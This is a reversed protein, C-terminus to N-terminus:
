RGIVVLDGANLSGESVPTVAVFGDASLGAVIEVDTPQADNPTTVVSVREKGDAAASVAAVPVVLVDADTSAATMTLRINSGTLTDPLTDSPTITAPHGPQGDGTDVVTESLSSITGNYTTSTLEDLMEVAMGTRLLGAQDPRVTTHVVLAGGSLTVLASNGADDSAQPGGSHSASPGANQVRAPMTPIFVIEGQAITPGNIAELKSLAREAQTAREQAAAVQREQATSGSSANAEDLSLQALTLAEKAAKVAEATTRRTQELEAMAQDVASNAEAIANQDGAAAVLRDRNAVATNYRGEGLRVQSLREANARDVARAAQDRGVQAQALASKGGGADKATALARKADALALQATEIQAPGDTFAPVPEYGAATYLGHVATKTAEDFVGTTEVTHGLRSLAAQLQEVDAGAMGPRLSRYVPVSGTLVFVPRGSVEIVRTGEPVTDGASVSRQTVVGTGEVSTPASIGVSVEAAVDGRQIVTSSLVRKEVAATIWSAPPAEARALAQAPSISRSGLVWAGGAGVCLCIVGVAWLWRKSMATSYEYCLPRLTRPEDTAAM